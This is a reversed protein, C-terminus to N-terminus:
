SAFRGISSLSSIETVSTLRKWAIASSSLEYAPAAHCRLNLLRNALDGFRIRLATEFSRVVTLASGEDRDFTRKTMGCPM